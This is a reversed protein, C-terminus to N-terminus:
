PKAGILKLPRTEITLSRPPARGPADRPASAGDGILRLPPTAIASQGQAPPAPSFSPKAGDGILRLPLTEIVRPAEHSEAHVNPAAASIAALLLAPLRRAAM